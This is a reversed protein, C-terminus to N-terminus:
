EATLKSDDIEKRQYRLGPGLAAGVFIGVGICIALNDLALGAGAAVLWSHPQARIENDNGREHEM